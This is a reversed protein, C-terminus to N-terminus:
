LRRSAGEARRAHWRAGGSDIQVAHAPLLWLGAYRAEQADGTRRPRAPVTVTALATKDPRSTATQAGQTMCSPKLNVINCLCALTHEAAGIKCLYGGQQVIM